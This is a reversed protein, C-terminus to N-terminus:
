FHCANKLVVDGNSKIFNKLKDSKASLLLISVADQLKYIIDIDLM